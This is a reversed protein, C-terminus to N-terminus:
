AVDSRSSFLCGLLRLLLTGHFMVGGHADIVVGIGIGGVVQVGVVQGVSAACDPAPCNKRAVAWFPSLRFALMLSSARLTCLRISNLPKETPNRIRGLVIGRIWGVHRPTM